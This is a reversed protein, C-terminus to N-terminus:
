PWYSPWLTWCENTLHPLNFKKKRNWSQRRSSHLGQSIEVKADIPISSKPPVHARFGLTFRGKLNFKHISPHISPYIAGDSKELCGLVRFCRRRVQKPSNHICLGFTKQWGFYCFVTFCHIFLENLNVNLSAHLYALVFVRVHLFFLFFYM